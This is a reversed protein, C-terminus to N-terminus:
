FKANEIMVWRARLAERNDIIIKGREPGQVPDDVCSADLERYEEVRTVPAPPLLHLDEFKAVGTLPSIFLAFGILASVPKM